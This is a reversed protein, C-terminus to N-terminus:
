SSSSALITIEEVVVESAILPAHEDGGTMVHGTLYGRIHVWTETPLTLLIKGVEANAIVAHWEYMINHDYIHPKTDLVHSRLITRILAQGQANYLTEPGPQVAGILEVHNLHAPPITLVHLSSTPLNYQQAAARFTEATTGTLLRVTPTHPPRLTVLICYHCDRIAQIDSIPIEEFGIQITPASM